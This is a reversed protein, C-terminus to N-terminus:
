DRPSPSTYLLCLSANPQGSTKPVAAAAVGAKVTNIWERPTTMRVGSTYMASLQDLLASVFVDSGLYSPTKIKDDGGLTQSVLLPHAMLAKTFDSPRKGSLLSRRLKGVTVQDDGLLSCVGLFWSDGRQKRFSTWLEHLVSVMLTTIAVVLLLGVAVELIRMDM